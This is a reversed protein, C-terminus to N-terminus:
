EAIMSLVSVFISAWICLGAAGPWGNVYLVLAAVNFLTAVGHRFRDFQRRERAEAEMFNVLAQTEPSLPAAPQGPTPLAHM